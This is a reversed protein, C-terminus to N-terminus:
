DDFEEAEMEAQDDALAERLKPTAKWAIKGNRGVYRKADGDAELETLVHALIEHRHAKPYNHEVLGFQHDVWLRLTKNIRFM